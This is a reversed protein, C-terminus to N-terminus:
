SVLRGAAQKGGFFHWNRPSRLLFPMVLKNYLSCLTLFLSLLLPFTFLVGKDRRISTSTGSFTIAVQGGEQHQSYQSNGCYILGKVSIMASHAYEVQPSTGSHDKSSNYSRRLLLCIWKHNGSNPLPISYEGGPAWRSFQTWSQRVWWLFSISSNSCTWFLAM